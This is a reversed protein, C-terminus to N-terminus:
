SVGLADCIAIIREDPMLQKQKSATELHGKLVSSQEVGAKVDGM